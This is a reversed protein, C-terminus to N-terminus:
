QITIERERIPEMKEVKEGADVKVVTGGYGSAQCFIRYLPVAAYALGTVTIAIAIAYMVTNRNASKQRSTNTQHTSM